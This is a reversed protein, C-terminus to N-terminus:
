RPLQRRYPMDAVRHHASRIHRGAALGRFLQYRQYWPESLDVDPHRARPRVNLEINQELIEVRVPLLRHEDNVMEKRAVVELVHILIEMKAAAAADDLIQWAFRYGAAM